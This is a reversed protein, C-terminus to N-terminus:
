INCMKKSTLSYDTKRIKHVATIFSNIDNFHQNILDDFEPVAYKSADDSEYNLYSGGSAYTVVGGTKSTDVKESAYRALIYWYPRGNETIYYDKRLIKKSNYSLKAKCM